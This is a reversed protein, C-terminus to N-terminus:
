ATARTESGGLQAGFVEFVMKCHSAIIEGSADGYKEALGYIQHELEAISENSVKGDLREHVEQMAKDATMARPINDETLTIKRACFTDFRGDCCIKGSKRDFDALYYLDYGGNIGSTIQWFKRAADDHDKAVFPTYFEKADRGYVSYLSMIMFVGLKVQRVTGPM